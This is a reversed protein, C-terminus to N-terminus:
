YPGEPLYVFTDKNDVSFIAPKFNPSYIIDAYPLNSLECATVIASHLRVQTMQIKAPLRVNKLCEEHFAKKWAEQEAVTWKDKVAELVIDAIQEFSTEM